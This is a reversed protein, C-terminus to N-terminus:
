GGPVAQGCASCFRAGVPLEAQCRACRALTALQRGCRPCFRSDVAVASQCGPCTAAAASTGALDTGL